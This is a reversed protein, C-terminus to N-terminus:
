LETLIIGQEDIIKKFDTSLKQYENLDVKFPLDSNEFAESILEYEYASVPDKLCIDLDSFKKNSAKVRSGYIVTNPYKALINKVLDLQPKTLNIKNM